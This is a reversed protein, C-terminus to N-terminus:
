DEDPAENPEYLRTNHEAMAWRRVQQYIEEVRDTKEKEISKGRVEEVGEPSTYYEPNFTKKLFDNMNDLSDKNIEGWLEKCLPQVICKFYYKRQEDSRSKKHECFSIDVIAGEKYEKFHKQRKTQTVKNITLEGNKICGQIKLKPSPM